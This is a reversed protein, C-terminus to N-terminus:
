ALRAGGRPPAGRADGGGRSRVASVAPAGTSQAVAMRRAYGPTNANSVNGSAVDMAVRNYRLASLAGSFSSFTGSM